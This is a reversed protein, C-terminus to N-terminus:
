ERSACKPCIGKVLYNVSKMIFGCPLDIVPIGISEFCYTRHCRECYFHTHMDSLSCKESRCLEYRLTGGGDEIVHVIHREVFLNLVRFISSRDVTGIMQELETLSLPHLASLMTRVVLIRNATPRVGKADLLTNEIGVEM